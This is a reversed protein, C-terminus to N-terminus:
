YENKAGQKEIYEWIKGQTDLHVQKYQEIRGGRKKIIDKKLRSFINVPASVFQIEGLRNSDRKAKYELNLAKLEEDFLSILNGFDATKLHGEEVVLTYYPLHNDWRPVLTYEEGRIIGIRKMAECVHFETLKEGTLSSIHKGKNLFAIVPVGHCFDVVEILDHINYRFFGYPTTIVMFYRKGKELDNMLLTRTSLNDEEEEPIFEYFNSFIDLVGQNNEAGTPISMRGESALLGLEYVPVNGYYEKLLLLYQGVTGGKWSAILYLSPWCSLPTLKNDKRVIEKLEEARKKDKSNGKAIDEILREKWKDMYRALNILTSPNASSIFRINKEAAARRLIAYSKDEIDKISYVSHPVCYMKRAATKQSQAILGSIGGCPIGTKSIEESMSSVVPLIVGDLVGPYSLFMFSGWYLSGRKYAKLFSSTVPIFKPQDTTGSSLAFMILKERPPFLVNKEGNKVREVYPAYDEYTQVPINEQFEKISKINSLHKEKGYLTDKAQNLYKWFVKEQIKKANRLRSFFYCAHRKALFTIFYKKLNTM